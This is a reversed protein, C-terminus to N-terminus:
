RKERIEVDGIIPQASRDILGNGDIPQADACIADVVDMGETVRGFAAYQGDLSPCDQQVIFFQSSASDYAASRAMSIVGRTHSIPNDVGNASFEGRITRGSGGTGNGNPDGGQMMFGEIIRHFTLGDYFDEQALTIFNAVTEPAAASDLEVTIVGYGRVSIDAYYLDEDPMEKGRGVFLSVVLGAALVVVLAFSAITWKSHSHKEKKKANM